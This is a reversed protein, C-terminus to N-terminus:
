YIKVGRQLWRSWDKSYTHVSDTKLGSQNVVAHNNNVWDFIGGYLNQVDSFGMKILKEGIRESRYGVSCYVIIKTRRNVAKVKESDFDNYDIFLANPLHSVQFEKFSRTDLILMNEGKEIKTSLTESQILPVTNKYLSKLKKDFNTQGTASLSVLFIIFSSVIIVKKEM